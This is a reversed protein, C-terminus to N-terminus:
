DEPLWLVDVKERGGLTLAIKAFCFLIALGCGLPIALHVFGQPFGFPQWPFRGAAQIWSISYYVMFANVVAVLALGAVYIWMKGMTPLKDIFFTIATHEHRSIGVAGGIASTFLFAITVMENGGNISTAFVYRLVVLLCVLVLFFVFLVILLRELWRVLLKDLKVIQDM